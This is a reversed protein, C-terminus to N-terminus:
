DLGKVSETKLAGKKPHTKQANELGQPAGFESYV